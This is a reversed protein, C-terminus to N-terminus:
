GDKLPDVTGLHPAFIDTASWTVIAHSVFTQLPIFYYLSTWVEKVCVNIFNSYAYDFLINNFLLERFYIRNCIENSVKCFLTLANLCVCCSHSACDLVWWQFVKQCLLIHQKRTSLNRLLQHHPMMPWHPLKRMKRYPKDALNCCEMFMIRVPHSHRIM